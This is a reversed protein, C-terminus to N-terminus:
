RHFNAKGIDVKAEGPINHMQMCLENAEGSLGRSEGAM